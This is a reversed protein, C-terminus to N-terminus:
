RNPARSIKEYALIEADPRDMRAYAYALSSWAREAEPHHPAMKLASTLLAIAKTNEQLRGYVCGLDIRLLPDVSTAAGEDELLQRARLNGRNRSIANEERSIIPSEVAIMARLHLAYRNMAAPDRARDWVSPPTEARASGAICLTIAATALMASAAVAARATSAGRASKARVAKRESM